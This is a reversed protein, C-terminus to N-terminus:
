IIVIDEFDLNKETGFSYVRGNGNMKYLKISDEGAAFCPLKELFKYFTHESVRIEFASKQVRYGYGQLFKAFKQRKHNDVIDYIILACVKSEANEIKSAIFVSERM